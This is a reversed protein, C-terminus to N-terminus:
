LGLANRQETEYSQFQTLKAQLASTKKTELLTNFEVTCMVFFAEAKHEVLNLLQIVHELCSDIQALITNADGLEKSLTKYIPNIILTHKRIEKYVRRIQM